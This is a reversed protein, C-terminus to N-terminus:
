AKNAHEAEKDVEYVFPQSLMWRIAADFNLNIRIVMITEDGNHVHGWWRHNGDVIYDDLSTIIPLKMVEAPITAARAHNIRQHARLKNLPVVEFAIIDCVVGAAVMRPIEPTDVQPMFQRPVYFPLFQGAKFHKGYDEEGGKPCHKSLPM